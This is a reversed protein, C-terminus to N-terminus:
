ALSYMGYGELNGSVLKLRPGSIVKTLVDVLQDEFRVHSTYIIKSLMDRVYYYNTEIYKTRKHVALNAIHIVAQNDCALHMSTHCPVILVILLFHLWVLEYTINDM